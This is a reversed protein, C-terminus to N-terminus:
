PRRALWLGLGFACALCPVLGLTTLFTGLDYGGTLARGTTAALFVGALASVGALLAAAPGRRGPWLAAAVLWLGIILDAVLFPHLFRGNRANVAQWALVALGLAAATIRAPLIM